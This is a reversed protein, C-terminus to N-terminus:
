SLINSQTIELNIEENPYILSLIQKLERNMFYQLPRITTNMFLKQATELQEASSSFGTKSPLGV